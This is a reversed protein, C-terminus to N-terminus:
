FLLSCSLHLPTGQLVGVKLEFSDTEDYLQLIKFVLDRSISDFAKRFDVFCITLDKFSGKM